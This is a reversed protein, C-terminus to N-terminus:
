ELYDKIIKDALIQQVWYKSHNGDLFVEGHKLRKIKKVQTIEPSIDLLSVQKNYKFVPFDNMGNIKKAFTPIIV